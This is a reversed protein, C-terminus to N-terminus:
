DADAEAPEGDPLAAQAADGLADLPEAAELADLVPGASRVGERHWREVRTLEYTLPLPDEEDFRDCISRHLEVLEELQEVDFSFRIPEPSGDNWAILLGDGAATVREPYLAHLIRHAGVLYAFATGASAPEEDDGPAHFRPLFGAVPLLPLGFPRGITFECGDPNSYDSDLEGNAWQAISTSGDANFGVLILTLGNERVGVRTAIWGPEIEYESGPCDHEELLALVDRCASECAAFDMGPKVRQRILARFDQGLGVCGGIAVAVRDGLLEIKTVAPINVPVSAEPDDGDEYEFASYDGTVLAYRHERAIGVQLTM